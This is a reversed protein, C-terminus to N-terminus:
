RIANTVHVCFVFACACARSDANRLARQFPRLITGSPSRYLINGAKAKQKASQWQQAVAKKETRLECVLNWVAEKEEPEATIGLVESLESKNVRFLHKGDIGKVVFTRGFHGYENAELWMAVEPASWDVPERDAFDKLLTVDKQIAIFHTV